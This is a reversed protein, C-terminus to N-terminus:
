ALVKALKTGGVFIGRSVGWIAKPALQLGKKGVAALTKAGPIHQLFGLASTAVHRQQHLLSLVNYKSSEACVMSVTHRVLEDLEDELTSDPAHLHTFCEAVFNLEKIFAQCKPCVKLHEEAFVRELHGITGDVYQQLLDQDFKCQM